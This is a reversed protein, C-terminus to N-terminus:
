QGQTREQSVSLSPANCLAVVKGHRHLLSSGSRSTAAEVGERRAVLLARM